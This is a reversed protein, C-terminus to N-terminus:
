APRRSLQKLRELDGAILAEKKALSWRKLQLERRVAANVSKLAERYVLRVPRRTATYRAGRGANHEKERIEPNKTHGVYITGDACRIMYVFNM